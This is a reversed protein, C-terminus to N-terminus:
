TLPSGPWDIRGESDVSSAGAGPRAPFQFAHRSGTEPRTPTGPHAEPGPAAPRTRGPGLFDHDDADSLLGAESCLVAGTRMTRHPRSEARDTKRTLAGAATQAARPARRPWAVHWFVGVRHPVSCVRCPALAAAKMSKQVTCPTRARIRGIMRLRSARFADRDRRPISSSSRRGTAATRTRLHTTAGSRVGITCSSTWRHTTYHSRHLSACKLRTAHASPVQVIGPARTRQGRRTTSVM